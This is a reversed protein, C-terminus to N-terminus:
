DAPAALLALIARNAPPFDYAGLDQRAVWRFRPPLARRSEVPACACFHLRVAAHEYDHDVVLHTGLVRVTWGTEELCERLAASAPTEGTEVKGGPFEWLGALPVNGERRGVLFEGDREVVAVAIEV